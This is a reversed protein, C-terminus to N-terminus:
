MYQWVDLVRGDRSWVPIRRRDHRGLGCGGAGGRGYDGSVLHADALPFGAVLWVGNGEPGWGRGPGMGKWAGDEEPCWGRGPAFLARRNCILGGKKRQATTGQLLQADARATRRGGGPHEM